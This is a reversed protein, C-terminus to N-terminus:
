STAVGIEADELSEMMSDDATMCEAEAPLNEVITAQSLNNVASDFLTFVNKSSSNLSVQPSSEQENQATPASKQSVESVKRQDNM